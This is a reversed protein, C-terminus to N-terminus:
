LATIRFSPAALYTEASGCGSGSATVVTVRFSKGPQFLGGADGLGCTPVDTRRMSLSDNGHPAALITFPGVTQGPAVTFPQSNVTGEVAAEFENVITVVFPTPAVTTSTVSSRAATTPPTTTAPPETTTTTEPAPPAPVAAGAVPPTTTTTTASPDGAPTTSSYPAAPLAALNAEQLPLVVPQTGRAAGTTSATLVDDEGDVLGLATLGGTLLVAVAVALARRTWTRTGDLASDM